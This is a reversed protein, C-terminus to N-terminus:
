GPPWTLSRGGPLHAHVHPVALVRDTEGVATAPIEGVVIARFLCDAM